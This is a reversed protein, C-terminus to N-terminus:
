LRPQLHLRAGEHRALPRQSGVHASAYLLSLRDNPFLTSKVFREPILGEWGGGYVALPLGADVAWKVVPRLVGRSNGVFLVQEALDPDREQAHFRRSDTAQPMFVVPTDIQSGLLEAHRQSAVLILDYRECERATVDDPHSIIWLVNIHAPKPTYRTLGRLHIVIDADQSAPLDWEPLIHLETPLGLLTLASALANGYHTDGWAPKAEETPVGIKIAVRPRDLHDLAARMFEGPRTAYSHRELVRRRLRRM